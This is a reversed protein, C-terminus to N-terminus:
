RIEKDEWFISWRFGGDAKPIKCMLILKDTKEIYGVIQCEINSLEGTSTIQCGALFLMGLVILFVRM